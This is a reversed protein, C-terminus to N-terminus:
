GRNWPMKAVLLGMGCWDTMGAFILGAGVFGSLLTFLPNMMFGLVLGLLVLAGAGIRVQRELSIAKKGRVVPYGAVVWADIGGEVVFVNKLEAARCQAYVQKSRAGTKCVLYVYKDGNLSVPDFSGMPMCTTEGIHVERYEVPTRVDIVRGAAKLKSLAEPAVGHELTAMSM